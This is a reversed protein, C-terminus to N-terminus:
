HSKLIFEGATLKKNKNQDLMDFIKQQYSLFQERSIKGEANPGMKMFMEKTRLGHIFDGPAVSKMDMSEGYFEKADIFGTNNKDLASFVRNQFATWEEQSVTGDHDTDIAHMTEMTRLGTAYGGTAFSVMDDARALQYALSALACVVVAASKHVTKM